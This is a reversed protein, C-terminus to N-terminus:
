KDNEGTVFDMKVSVSTNVTQVGLTVLVHYKVDLDQGDLQVTM